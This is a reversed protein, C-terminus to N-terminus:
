VGVILCNCGYMHSEITANLTSLLLWIFNPL